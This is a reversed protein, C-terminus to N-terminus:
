HLRRMRSIPRATWDFRYAKKSKTFPGFCINRLPEYPSTLKKQPAFATIDWHRASIRPGRFSLGHWQPEQTKSQMSHRGHANALIHLDEDQYSIRVGLTLAAVIEMSAPLLLPLQSLTNHFNTRCLRSYERYDSIGYVVVHESFAYSLYGNALIFDVKSYDDVAFYM